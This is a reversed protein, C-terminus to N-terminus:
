LNYLFMLVPVFDQIRWMIYSAHVFSYYRSYTSLVPRHPRLLRAQRSLPPPPRRLLPPLRLPVLPPLHVRLLLPGHLCLKRGVEEERHQRLPHRPGPGDPPRRPHVGHTAMRQRRQEAM